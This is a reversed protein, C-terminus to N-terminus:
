DLNVFFKMGPYKVVHKNTFFLFVTAIVQSTSVNKCISISINWVIALSSKRTM